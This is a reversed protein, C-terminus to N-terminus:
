SEVTNGSLVNRGTERHRWLTRVIDKDTAIGNLKRKRM